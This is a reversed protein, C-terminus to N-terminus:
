DTSSNQLTNLDHCFDSGYKCLKMYAKEIISVWLEFSHECKTHSCLINGQTDIPFLDDVEVKREVGNLWLRVLYRGHM